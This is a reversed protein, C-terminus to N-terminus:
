GQPVGDNVKTYERGSYTQFISLIYIYIFVSRQMKVTVLLFWFYLFQFWHCHFFCHFFLVPHKEFLSGNNVAVCIYFRTDGMHKM